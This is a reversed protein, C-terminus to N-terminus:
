FKFRVEAWAHRGPGPVNGPLSKRSYDQNKVDFLNRLSAAFEWEAGHYYRLTLDALTKAGIPDRPDSSPLARAAFHHAELNWRWKPTPQWDLRLYAQAKPINPDRLVEDQWFRTYNGSLRLNRGLQWRWETEVGRTAYRGPLNAFTGGVDAIVDRRLFHFVDFGVAFRSVPQWALAFDFTQSKEPRLHANPKTAATESYLELYSPARFASGLMWKASLAPSAHWVLALRPNTTDGFDSFHDHRLGVTMEWDESLRWLDQFYVYANRRTKEPIYNKAVGDYFQEVAYPTQWAGGLGMRLAHDRWGQYVLSGELTTRREAVSLRNLTVTPLREWFGNGSDYALDRLRIEAYASWHHAWAPDEYIWTVNTQRERARTHPDLIAAGTLGIAVENRWTHDFLFLGRASKLAFHLDGGQWGYEARAPGQGLADRRIEPRHGQTDQLDATLAYSFGAFEGSKRLWVERTKFSGWRLGTEGEEIGDASAPRTIVHIVGAAADAGYLASGPGRIVEIREIRNTPIGKWFISPSWILDKMPAGDVLLLVNVGAAGRMSLLPKYGFLNRRVYIGPVAQLVDMLNAAGMAQMDDSTIVSVVASAEALTQPAQAAITVTMAMLAEPSASLLLSEERAWAHALIVACLVFGHWRKALTM